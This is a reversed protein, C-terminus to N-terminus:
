FQLQNLYSIVWTTNASLGLSFSLDSIKNTRTLNSNDTYQVGASGILVEQFPGLYFFAERSQRFSHIPLQEPATRVLEQARLSGTLVLCLIFPSIAPPHAHLFRHFLTVRSNICHDRPM